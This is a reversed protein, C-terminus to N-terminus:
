SESGPPKIRNLVALRRQLPEAERKLDTYRNVSAVMDEPFTAESLRYRSGSPESYGYKRAVEGLGEAARELPVTLWQPLQGPAARYGQDALQDRAQDTPRRHWWIVDAGLTEDVVTSSAAQLSQVEAKMRALQDHGLSMTVAAQDGVLAVVTEWYWYALFEASSALFQQRAEELRGVLEHVENELQQIEANAEAEMRLRGRAVAGAEPNTAAEAGNTGPDRAAAPDTPKEPYDVKVWRPGRIGIFPPDKLAGLRNLCSPSM